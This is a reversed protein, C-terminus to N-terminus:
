QRDLIGNGNRGSRLEVKRCKSTNKESSPSPREESDEIALADSFDYWTAHPYPIEVVRHDSDVIVVMMRVMKAMGNEWETSLM